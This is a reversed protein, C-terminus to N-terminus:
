VVRYVVPNKGINSVTHSAPYGSILVPRIESWAPNGVLDSIQFGSIQVPRIDLWIHLLLPPNPSNACFGGGGGVWGWYRWGVEQFHYKKGEGLLFALNQEKM